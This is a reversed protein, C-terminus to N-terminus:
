SVKLSPPSISKLNPVLMGLQVADRVYSSKYGFCCCTKEATGPRARPPNLRPGTHTLQPVSGRHFMLPRAASRTSPPLEAPLCPCTDGSRSSRRPEVPVETGAGCGLPLPLPCPGLGGRAGAPVVGTPEAAKVPGAQRQGAGSRATQM